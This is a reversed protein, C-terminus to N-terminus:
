IEGFYSMLISLVCIPATEARLIRKGLSLLPFDKELVKDIEEKDFGGEPGIAFSINKNLNTTKLHESLLLSANEYFFLGNKEKLKDLMNEFSLFDGIIPITERGSQMAALKAVKEFREKKSTGKDTLKAICNKSSFFVIESIGLETAKQIVFENKDGKLLALFLTIDPSNNECFSEKKIIDLLIGKRDISAVKGIYNYKENDSLFFEEGINPRLAFLHRAEDGIIKIQNDIDTPSIFITM